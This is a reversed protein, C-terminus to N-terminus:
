WIWVRPILRRTNLITEFSKSSIPRSYSKVDPNLGSVAPMYCMRFSKGDISFGKSLLHHTGKDEVIKAVRKCVKDAAGSGTQKTFDTWEKPQSTRLFSVLSKKALLAAQRVGGPGRQLFGNTEILHKEILSELM